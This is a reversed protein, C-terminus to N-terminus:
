SATMKKYRELYKAGKTRLDKGRKKLADYQNNQLGKDIGFARAVVVHSFPPNPMQYAIISKMIDDSDKKLEKSLTAVKRKLGEENRSCEIYDEASKPLAVLETEAKGLIADKQLNFIGPHDREFAELDEEIFYTVDSTESKDYGIWDYIKFDDDDNLMLIQERIDILHNYKDYAKLGKYLVFDGLTIEDAGWRAMVEAGTLRKQIKM